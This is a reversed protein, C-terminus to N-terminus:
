KGQSINDIHKLTCTLKYINMNWHAIVSYREANSIKLVNIPMNLFVTLERLLIMSDNTWQALSLRNLKIKSVLIHISQLIM